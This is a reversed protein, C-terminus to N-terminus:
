AGTDLLVLSVPTLYKEGLLFAGSLAIQLYYSSAEFVSKLLQLGALQYEPTGREVTELFRQIIWRTYKPIAVQCFIDVLDPVWTVDQSGNQLAQSIAMLGCGLTKWDLAECALALNQLLCM